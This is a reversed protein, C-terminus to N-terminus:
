NPVTLEMIGVQYDSSNVGENEEGESQSLNEKGESFIFCDEM